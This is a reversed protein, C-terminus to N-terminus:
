KTNGAQKSTKKINRVTIQTVMSNHVYIEVSGYAKVSELADKIERILVNSIKKVSYDRM